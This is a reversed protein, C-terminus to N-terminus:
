FWSQNCHHQTVLEVFGQDNVIATDASTKERLGRADIDAALFYVNINKQLILQQQNDPLGLAAYVGNEIFLLSCNPGAVRLCDDLANNNFPSQNIIHLM